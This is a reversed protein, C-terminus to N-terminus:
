PLTLQPQAFKPLLFMLSKSNDHLLVHLVAKSPEQLIKPNSYMAWLVGLCSVCRNWGKVCFLAGPEALGAQGVDTAKVVTPAKFLWRHQVQCMVLKECGPRNPNSQFGNLMVLQMLAQQVEETTLLSCYTQQFSHSVTHKWCFVLLLDGDSTGRLGYDARHPLQWPRLYLSHGEVGLDADCSYTRPTSMVRFTQEENVKASTLLSLGLAPIPGNPVGSGDMSLIQTRWGGTKPDDTKNCLFAPVFSLQLLGGETATGFPVCRHDQFGGTDRAEAM